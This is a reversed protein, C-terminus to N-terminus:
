VRSFRQVHTGKLTQLFPPRVALLFYYFQISLVANRVRTLSMVLHTRRFVAGPTRHPRDPATNRRVLSCTVLPAKCDRFHCSIPM